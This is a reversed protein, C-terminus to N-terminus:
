SHKRINNTKSGYEKEKQTKFIARFDRIIYYVVVLGYLITIIILIIKTDYEM